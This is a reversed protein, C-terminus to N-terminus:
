GVEKIKDQTYSGFRFTCENRDLPLHSINYYWALVTIFNINPVVWLTRRENRTGSLCFFFAINRVIEM